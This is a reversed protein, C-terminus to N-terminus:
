HNAILEASKEPKQVPDNLSELLIRRVGSEKTKIGQYQAACDHATTALFLLCPAPACRMMRIQHVALLAMRGNGGPARAPSRFPAKEKAGAPFPKPAV